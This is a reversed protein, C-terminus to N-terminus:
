EALSDAALGLAAARDPDYSTLDYRNAGITDGWLALADLRELASLAAGLTRPTSDPVDADEHLQRAQPYTRTSADLAQLADRWHGRFYGFKTPDDERLRQLATVAGGDAVPTGDIREFLDYIRVTTRAPVPAADFGARLRANADRVRELLDTVVTVFREDSGDTRFAELSEIYVTTEVPSEAWGDLYQEVLDVLTGPDVSRQVTTVALDSDVVHTEPSPAAAASRAIDYTEIVGMQEYTPGGPGKWRRHWEDSTADTLLALVNTGAAEDIPVTEVSLSDLVLTERNDNTEGM